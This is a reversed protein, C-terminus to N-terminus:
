TTPLSPSGEGFSARDGTRINVVRNAGDRDDVTCEDAVPRDAAIAADEVWLNALQAVGVAASEVTVRGEVDDVAGEDVVLGNGAAAPARAVGIASIDQVGAHTPSEGRISSSHDHAAGCERVILGDAARVGVPCAPLAADAM